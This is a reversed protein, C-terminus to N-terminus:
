NPTAALSNIERGFRDIAITTADSFQADGSERVQVVFNSYREELASREIARLDHTRSALTRGIRELKSSLLAATIPVSRIQQLLAELRAADVSSRSTLVGHVARGLAGLEDLDTVALGRHEMARLLQGQPTNAPPLGRDTRAHPPADKPPGALPSPSKQPEEDRPEEIQVEPARRPPEALPDSAASAGTAANAGSAAGTAGSAGSAGTGAVPNSRVKEERPAAAKKASPPDLAPGLAIDDVASNTLLRPLYLWGSIGAALLAAGGFALTLGPGSRRGPDRLAVGPLSDAGERAPLPEGVPTAMSPALLAPAPSPVGPRLSATRPPAAFVQSAGRPGPERGAARPPPPAEIPIAHVPAQAPAAARTPPSPPAPVGSASPTAASPAQASAGVPPQSASGAGPGAGAGSSAGAGASSSGGVPAVAVSALGGPAGARAAAEIAAQVSALVQAEDATAASPPPRRGTRGLRLGDIVEDIEAIVELASLPRNEPAKQLLRMTLDELGAAPALPAPLESLQRVIVQQMVDGYFPPKGSLMEYMIIGLAYLDAAPGVASQYVQEPAMYIPTGLVFGPRTLKQTEPSDPINALGVIGFDLVKVLEDGPQSVLMVNGPKLDRHVFGLRHAESLGDAIQRVIRAVRRLPLAGETALTQALSEGRLLEMTLFTLGAATAGFDVVSVINPHRMKSVAQAERKFREALTRNGAMEGFLVKIAYEHELVVHTARYVNGMGGTGLQEIVKFRDITHGILPDIDTEVLRDGDMGCFEIESNFISRCRPCARM